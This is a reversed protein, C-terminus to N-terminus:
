FAHFNLLYGELKKSPIHHFEHGLCIRAKGIRTTNLVEYAEIAFEPKLRNQRFLYTLFIIHRM